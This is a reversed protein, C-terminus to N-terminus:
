TLKYDYVLLVINCTFLIYKYYTTYIVIYMNLIVYISITSM